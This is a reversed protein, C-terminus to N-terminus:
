KIMISNKGSNPVLSLQNLDVGPEISTYPKGTSRNWLKLVKQDMSLVLDLEDSFDISKIPLGYNHDKVLM